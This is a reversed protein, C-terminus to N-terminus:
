GRRSALFVSYNLEVRTETKRSRGAILLATGSVQVL